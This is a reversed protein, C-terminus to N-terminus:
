KFTNSNIYNITEEAIEELVDFSVDIEWNLLYYKFLRKFYESVYYCVKIEKELEM